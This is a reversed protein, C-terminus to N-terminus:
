CILKLVKSVSAPSYKDQVAKVADLPSLTKVEEFKLLNAFEKSPERAIFGREEESPPIPIYEVTLNDDILILHPTQDKEDFAKKTFSGPNCYSVNNKIIPRHGSHRDGFVVITKKRTTKMSLTNVDVSDGFLIKSNEVPAHAIVIDHELKLSNTVLEQYFKGGWHIGLIKIGDIEEEDLINIAGRSILDGLATIPLDELNDGPVDHNGIVTFVPFNCSKFARELQGLLSFSAKDYSDFVDGAIFLAKLDQELVWKLRPLQYTEFFSDGELRSIPASKRFHTDAIVGIKKM